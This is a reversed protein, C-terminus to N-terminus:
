EKPVRYYIHGNLMQPQFRLVRKIRELSNPRPHYTKFGRHKRSILYTQGNDQKIIEAKTLM